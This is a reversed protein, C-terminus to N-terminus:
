EIGAINSIMMADKLSENSRSSTLGKGGGSSGMRFSSSNLTDGAVMTAPSGAVSSPATSTSAGTVSSAIGSGSQLGSSSSLPSPDSAGGGSGGASGGASEGAASTVAGASASRTSVKGIYWSPVWGRAHNGNEQVCYSWHNYRKFVKLRDEKKLELRPTTQQTQADETSATSTLADSTYDMLMIGPTSTSTIISPPIPISSHDAQDGDSDNVRTLTSTAGDPGPVSALPRSTEILCGAPVWGSRIELPRDSSEHAGDSATGGVIDGVGSAHTDCQVVWWGKAKSLVVFTDGVSVDFEDERECVYPYIAIAYSRSAEPNPLQAVPGTLLVESVGNGETGLAAAFGSGPTLRLSKSNKAANSGGGDKGEKRSGTSNASGRRAAAKANAISLPSKVDRIHRLMFVPNQRAEKLKQFLLLPKEDYSLCRETSGYCIFLAYLRWDDNIKYKKLAAPLVKYCPDELTVRFSKYSNDGTGLTTATGVFDRGANSSGKSSSSSPQQQQARLSSSSM